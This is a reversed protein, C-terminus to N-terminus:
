GLAPEEVDRGLPNNFFQAGNGLGNLLPARFPRTATAGASAIKIAVGTMACAAPSANTFTLTTTSSAANKYSGTENSGIQTQDDQKWTQTDSTLWDNTAGNNEGMVVGVAVDTNGTAVAISAPSATSTGTTPTGVPTSQSVGQWSDEGAFIVLCKGSMNVTLTSTGAPPSLLYWIDAISHSFTGTSVVAASTVKTLTSTGYVVNAVTITATSAITAGPRAVLISNTLGAGVVCAFALSTATGTVNKGSSSTDFTISM